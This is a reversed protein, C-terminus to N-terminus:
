GARDARFLLRVSTGRGPESRVASDDALCRALWLGRGSDLDQGPPAYGATPDRLGPGEDRVQWVVVDGESWQDIWAAGAARLCNTVLEYVALMVDTVRSPLRSTDLWVQIMPRGGHLDTLHLTRTESPPDTWAPEVSRLFTSTPEYYASPIPAEGDWALPHVRRQADVLDGPLRSRDHLCLSYYPFAAFADNTVAEFRSWEDGGPDALWTPEGILRWPRGSALLPEMGERYRALAEHGGCYFEEAAAFAALRATDAGMREALLRRVRDGALVVVPQGLDLGEEVFPLVRDRVQGDSDFFFGEHALEEGTWAGVTNAVSM